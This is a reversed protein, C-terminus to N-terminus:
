TLNEQNFSSDPKRGMDLFISQYLLKPQVNRALLPPAELILKTKRYLSEKGGAKITKGYRATATKENDNLSRLMERIIYAAEDLVVLPQYEALLDFLPAMKPYDAVSSGLVILQEIANRLELFNEWDGSLLIGPRGRSVEIAERKGDRINMELAIKEMERDEVESLHIEQCRSRVTPLLPGFDKAILIFHAYAPPEELVKLLANQSSINLAEAPEIIFILKKGEYPPLEITELVEKRVQEVLIQSKLKGKDSEELTIIRLDPFLSRKIKRCSLCEGCAWPTPAECELAAAIIYALSTKGVRPPGSILVTAPFIGNDLSKGLMELAKGHGYLHDKLIPYPCELIEIEEPKKRAM